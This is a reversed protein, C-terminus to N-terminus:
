VANMPTAESTETLDISDNPPMFMPAAIHLVMDATFHAIMAILLGYQWYLYGTGIAVLSNLLLARAIILPTLPALARTAPLHGIGFLIAAMVIGFWYAGDTPLGDSTTWVQGILWTFLTMLFLRTLIEETIGGYFGALFRKWVPMDAQTKHFAPPLHPMFVYQNIVVVLIGSISGIAIGILIWSGVDSPVADDTVMAEIIPAGLNIEGAMLLGLGTAVSVLITAQLLSLMVLKQKSFPVKALQERNLTFAYPMVAIAGIVGAIVLILFVLVPFDDM